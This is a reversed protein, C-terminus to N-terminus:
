RDHKLNKYDHAKLVLSSMTFRTRQDLIMVCKTTFRWWNRIAKAATKSLPAEQEGDGALVWGDM